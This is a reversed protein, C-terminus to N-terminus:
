NSQLSAHSADDEGLEGLRRHTRLRDEEAPVSEDAEPVATEVEATPNPVEPSTSLDKLHHEIKEPAVLLPTFLSVSLWVKEQCLKSIPPFAHNYTM